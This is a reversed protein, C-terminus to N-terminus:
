LHTTRLTSISGYNLCTFEAKSTIMCGYMQFQYKEGYKLENHLLAPPAAAEALSLSCIAM